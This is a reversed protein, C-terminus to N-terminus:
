EPGRIETHRIQGGLNATLGVLAATILSLLLVIVVIWKPISGSRRLFLLGALAAIGLIEMLVLTLDAMEEHRGISAETVNPLKKVTDEAAQGTFFVALTILALLVFLGFSVRKIEESKRALSYVLLTIAGFVGVVPFHNIMLHVHPWNM